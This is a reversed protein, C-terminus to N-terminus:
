INKSLNKIVEKVMIKAIKQKKVRGTKITRDRTIIYVQNFDSGFPSNKTGAPNAVIMDLNKDHLKKRANKVIDKSEAAFGVFYHTAKKDQALSKLIDRTPVLTLNLNKGKKIKNRSVKKVRYDSVAAPMIIITSNDMNKKIAQYMDEVTLAQISRVGRPVPISIRAHILIINKTYRKFERVLALGMKGSSSNGIFRVPDIPEITGGATIIIKRHQLIRKAKLNFM